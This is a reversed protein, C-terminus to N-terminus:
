AAPPPDRDADKSVAAVAEEPHPGRHLPVVKGGQADLRAIPIVRAGRAHDLARHLEGNAVILALILEALMAGDRGLILDAIFRRLLDNFEAGRAPTAARLYDAHAHVAALFNEPTAEALYARKTEGARDVADQAARMDYVQTM